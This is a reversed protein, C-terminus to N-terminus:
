YHWIGVKRLIYGTLPYSILFAIVAFLEKGTLKFVVGVIVLTLAINVFRGLSAHFGKKKM